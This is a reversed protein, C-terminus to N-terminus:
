TRSSAVAVHRIALVEVEARLARRSPQRVPTVFSKRRAYLDTGSDRAALSSSFRNRSGQAPWNRSLLQRVPSKFTQYCLLDCARIEARGICAAAEREQRPRTSFARLKRPHAAQSTTSAPHDCLLPHDHGGSPTISGAPIWEPSRVPRPPFVAPIAIVDVAPHAAVRLQQSGKAAACRSASTARSVQTHVEARDVKFKQVPPRCVRRIL